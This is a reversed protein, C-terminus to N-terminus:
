EIEDLNVEAAKRGRQGGGERFEQVIATRGDSGVSARIGNNFATVMAAVDVPLSRPMNQGHAVTVETKKDGSKPDVTVNESKVNKSPIDDTPKMQGLVKGGDDTIEVGDGNSIANVTAIYSQLAAGLSKLDNKGDPLTLLPFVRVMEHTAGDVTTVGAPTACKVTGLAAKNIQVAMTM